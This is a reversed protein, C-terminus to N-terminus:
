FPIAKVILRDPVESWFALNREVDALTYRNIRAEYSALDSLKRDSRTYFILDELVEDLNLASRRHTELMQRKAAELQAETLWQSADALTAEMTAIVEDARDPATSTGMNWVSQPMQPAAQDPALWFSYADGMQERLVRLMEAEMVRMAVNTLIREDQDWIPEPAKLRISIDTRDDQHAPVELTEVSRWQYPEISAAAPAPLSLGALTSQLSRVLASQEADGVVFLEVGLGKAPWQRHYDNLREATVAALDSLQLNMLNPHAQVRGALGTEVRGQPTAYFSRLFDATGALYTDVSAENLPQPHLYHAIIAILEHLSESNGDWYLGSEHLFDYANGGMNRQQQWDNFQTRSLGGPTTENLVHPWFVGLVADDYDRSASGGRNVLNVVVRGPEVDTPYFWVALGNELELRTLNDLETGVVSTVKGPSQRLAVDNDGPGTLQNASAPQQRAVEISAILGDRSWGGISGPRLMAGAFYPLGSVRQELWQNFADANYHHSLGVIVEPMARWDIPGMGEEIRAIFWDVRAASDANDLNGRQRQWEQLLRQTYLEYEDDSIGFQILSQWISEALHLHDQNLRGQPHVTFEVVPTGDDLEYFFADTRVGSDAEDAWVLSREQLALQLLEAFFRERQGDTTEISPFGGNFLRGLELYDQGITQDSAVWFRGESHDLRPRNPRYGESARLSGFAQEIRAQTSAIDVMGSIYLTMRDARYATEYLSRLDEATANRVSEPTGIPLQRYDSDGYHAGLRQLWAAEEGSYNLRWEEIIVGKEAEVEAEDFRIGGAWGALVQYAQNILEPQDSPVSLTYVTEDFATYANIDQGFNMGLSELYAILENGPFHETGNFAMHEIFHAYGLQGPGEDLSGFDVKLRFEVTTARQDHQDILYHLGNDLQGQHISPAAPLQVRDHQNFEVNSPTHACGALWLSACLFVWGFVAHPSARKIEM